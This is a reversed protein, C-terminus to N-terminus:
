VLITYAIAQETGMRSDGTLKNEVLRRINIQRRSSYDKMEKYIFRKNSWASLFHLHLQTQVSIARFLNEYIHKYYTDYDYM